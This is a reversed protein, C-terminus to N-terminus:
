FQAWVQLRLGSCRNSRSVQTSVIADNQAFTAFFMEALIREKKTSMGFSLKPRQYDKGKDPRTIESQKTDEDSLKWCELLSCRTQFFINKKGTGSMKKSGVL